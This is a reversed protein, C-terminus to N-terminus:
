ETRRLSARLDAQDFAGDLYIIQLAPSIKLSFPFEDQVGPYPRGRLRQLKGDLTNKLRDKRPRADADRLFLDSAENGFGVRGLINQFLLEHIMEPCRETVIGSCLGAFM